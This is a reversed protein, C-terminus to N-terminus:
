QTLGLLKREEPSLKKLAAEKARKKATRGLEAKAKRSIAREKAQVIEEQVYWLIEEDKMFLFKKPIGQKYDWFETELDKSGINKNEYFYSIEDEDDQPIHIDGMEGEPADHFYWNFDGSGLGFADHIIKLIQDIRGNIASEFGAAYNKAVQFGRLVGRDLPSGNGEPVPPLIKSGNEGFRHKVITDEVIAITAM